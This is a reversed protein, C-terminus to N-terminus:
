LRAGFRSRGPGVVADCEALLTPDWAVRYRGSRLVITTGDPETLEVFVPLPGTRSSFLRDLRSRLTEEVEPGPLSVYFGLSRQRVDAFPRVEEAIIKPSEGERASVQGKVWVIAEDVLHKGWSAYAEPFVLVEISGTRDELTGFAMPDGKKTLTRKLATVLGVARVPTGAAQQSFHALTGSALRAIDEKLGDLPHGSVYFGLVEKEKAARDLDSWPEVDPLAPTQMATADAGGGFLSTQGRAAEDQRRAGWELAMPVAAFLRARDTGFEDCAGAQVLSELMRRNLSRPPVRGAFDFLDTFPGGTERAAEIARVANEGLNKIAGLGFRIGGEALDFRWASHRLSPPLIPIGMRRAEDILVAVRDSDGIESSLNAAMFAIPHHAKLYATQYALMAYAAAHSKNFGYGAFKEVLKFLNKAKAAPTGTEKAGSVFDAEQAALLVPDKKGMAKRLVDARAMSFAAVRNAIQMVQEQYVIIGYTEDLIESLAPIDYDIKRRGHRREIFEPINDMPGPRYLAVVATIDEFRQPQLNRLTERMGSSELQFVAVTQGRGLMAFTGPDDTPVSTVDVKRGEHRQVLRATEDLVTMTRLGLFDMKLLGAKECARMDWQTTIEDKSSRYLPVHEVLPGPAILVGAAHVSAHRAMGELGKACRLLKGYEDDRKALAALDPVEKIADDLTVGLREPVLKSIRDGESFPMGLVRAVDKIVARAKMRGFTIIQTVSAAGYKKRVYDIVEGRRADEFDLDIDPMSIREPNLFREFILKYRLPDIDTIRLAYAVLSGAVSGRGPGVGIGQSRAFHIFDRVILFYSSFGARDIVGLEYDLRDVQEATPTPFRERLGAHSLEALLREASEAGEPLPFVPLKHTDDLDLTCRDAIARTNKLAQPLDAGFLHWMDEQSKFYMQDSRYRLRRPDDLTKGHGLALLVDHPEADAPNLYHFDNTVVMPIGTKKAVEVMRKGATLEDPIGHDQVELFFNGRGFLEDYFRATTEAGEIQEKLLAQNVEGKLCATLGILGEHHEALVDRDIRPKYYFGETYATSTLRILNRYGTENAALLIMHFNGDGREREQRAGPAVYAEMGVIPKVGAKKAKEVFEVAGFLNGHDTLALAPMGYEAARKVMDDIRCAGDLLSYDSHGHLHVFDPHDM